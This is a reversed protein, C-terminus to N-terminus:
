CRKPSWSINGPASALNTVKVTAGTDLWRVYLQTSGQKASLYALRKGDHSIVPSYYSSGDSLLPRQQQTKLDIQWLNVRTSDSMIDMSRREYIVSKHDPTVQPSAAYELQFIDEYDLTPSTAAYSLSCFLTITCFGVEVLIRSLRM